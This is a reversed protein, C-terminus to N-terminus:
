RGFLVSNPRRELAQVLANVSRVADRVEQILRLTDQNLQSGPSVSALAQDAQNAVRTLQTVLAPLDVAAATVADAARDASALTANVNAIAGGARLEALIANVEDLAAALKTPAAAVGESAVFADITALTETGSAVLEDLPLAAASTSLATLSDILAPLDESARSLNGAAVRAEAIATDVSQVIQARALEDSLQRVSALTANLNEIAGGTRLDDVVARLDTLSANLQGPLATVGESAVFADANAILGQTSAVLEDLPLARAEQSLTELETLLAPVGDAAAGLSGLATRAEALTAELTTALQARALEDSVQRVSALTANVNEVAGGTRLDNVLGRLEALSSNVSGPLNAVGQSQVFADINDVLRSGSAVLDDLPLGRAQASLAEIEDILAPVGEAATGIGAIATQAEALVGSLNEVLQAETAQDVVARVSALIAALEAPAERIGPENLLRRADALLLGLNEPAARIGDSTVLTNVNALLAVAAEVVDELPLDTIRQLLGQASAAVGTVDSPVSPLLPYPDADRDISAPPAEPIESLEVHLAQALLGTSALRARLGRDVLTALLDLAAEAPDEGTIGLRTPVLALTAQLTIRADEAEGVVIAQMATVEGVTVGNYRVDAGPQLGQISGDFRTNVTLRAGPEGEFINQRAATESPYLEYVYGAEVAAVDSGVTDFSVGGQLLSILSDVNLSAGGGGLNISFGSANWFRTGRTLRESNPANVFLDIVVDGAETLQIDEVRGVQIRKFLVPAGITMSGGDPARLRVRLGPQDAPTLPTRPLGEFHEVRAGPEADWYAAIYVGSIVTEIGTVGQASVSPRVVWFRASDDLYQAVDKRVRVTVLVSALDPSLDLREVVGVNIDRFRLTTQGAEVGAANEFTITILPGRESYTRWAVGLALVLAILPVLWVASIRRSTEAKPSEIEPAPVETEPM